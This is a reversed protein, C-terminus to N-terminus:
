KSEPEIKRGSLSVIRNAIRIFIEVPLEESRVGADVGEMEVAKLLLNKSYRKLGSGTLLNNRLTKRRSEFLSKVLNLFFKKDVPRVGGTRPVLKVVTSVVEPVPFFSGPKLDGETNIVYAYQCLVSFSSYDRVGPKALMRRAMDKQLTFIMLDPKLGGKIFSLIIASASSYPLNGVLKEPTSKEPNEKLFNVWSRAADGRVLTFNNRGAFTDELYNALGHDIEFVSIDAGSELLLETIAGLGPGIEWVAEGALPNVLAAIKERAGRNILFNQGWRKKLGINREKLVAAIDAPSDYNM